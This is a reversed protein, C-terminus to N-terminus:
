SVLRSVLEPDECARVGHQSCEAGLIDLAEPIKEPGGFEVAHVKIIKRADKCRKWVPAAWPELDLWEQGHMDIGDLDDWSHLSDIIPAMVNTYGDRTLGGVVKVDMSDPDASKITCPLEHGDSGTFEIIAMNLSTELYRINQEFLGAFIRNCRKMIDNQGQLGLWLM